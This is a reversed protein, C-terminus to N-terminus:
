DGSADLLLECLNRNSESTAAVNTVKINVAAGEDVFVARRREELKQKVNAKNVPTASWQTGTLYNDWQTVAMDNPQYFRL